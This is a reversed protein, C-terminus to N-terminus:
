QHIFQSAMVMMEASFLRRDIALLYCLLSGRLLESPIYKCAQQVCYVYFSAAKLCYVKAGVFNNWPYGM